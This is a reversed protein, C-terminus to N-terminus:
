TYVRVLTPLYLQLHLKGSPCTAIHMYHGYLSDTM